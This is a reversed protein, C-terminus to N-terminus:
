KSAKVLELATISLKNFLDPSIEKLEESDTGLFVLISVPIDLANAISNLTSFNMDRKGQELLSLYAVSINAIKALDSQRLNKQIRCIKIAKGINM